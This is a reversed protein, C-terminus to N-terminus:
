DGGPSEPDSYRPRMTQWFSALGDATIRDVGGEAMKTICRYRLVHGTLWPM